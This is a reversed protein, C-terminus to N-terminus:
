KRLRGTETFSVLIINQIEEMYCDPINWGDCTWYHGNNICYRITNSHRDAWQENIGIERLRNFKPLKVWM